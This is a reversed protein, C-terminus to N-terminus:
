LGDVTKSIIESIQCSRSYVKSLRKEIHKSFVKNKSSFFFLLHYRCPYAQKYNDLLLCLELIAECKAYQSILRIKQSIFNHLFVAFIPILATSSLSFFLFKVENLFKQSNFKIRYNWAKTTKSLIPNQYTPPLLQFIQFSGLNPSKIFLFSHNNQKLNPTEGRM